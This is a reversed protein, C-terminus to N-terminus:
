FGMFRLSEHCVANYGGFLIEKRNALPGVLAVNIPKDTSLPLINNKNELLTMLNEAIKRSLAIKDESHATAFYDGEGYLREFLGM